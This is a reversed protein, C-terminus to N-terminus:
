LLTVCLISGLTYWFHFMYNLASRTLQLELRLKREIKVRAFLSKSRCVPTKPTYKWRATQGSLLVCKPFCRERDSLTRISLNKTLSKEKAGCSGYLVNFVM